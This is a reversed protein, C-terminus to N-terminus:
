ENLLAHALECAGEVIFPMMVQATETEHRTHVWGLYTFARATLFVPMMDLHSDPLARKKRYGEIVANQMRDFHSEGLHSFLFTALDFLHWGFGADDFDILQIRDGSVLLNEPLFDAHILGYRDRTQGFAMLKRRVQERASLILRRQEHSLAGLEWFRGWFPNEGVLREVDWHHRTFGKPLNWQSAQNHVRAALEGIIRCNNERTELGGEIGSEVSGLPLGDVWGLMDCQRPEPVGDVSVTCFLDGSSTPFVPPTKVGYEDLARMWQLESALEEDSHYNYRHIRLVYCAGEGPTVRFVANERHKLLDIAASELGWRRIAAKALAAYREVQQRPPLSYFDTM